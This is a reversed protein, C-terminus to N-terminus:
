ADALVSKPNLSDPALTLRADLATQVAAIQKDISIATQSPIDLGRDEFADTDPHQERWESIVVDREHLLAVIQPRFLRFMATIWRNTPWSPWAHDIEFRDLMACVNEAAFWNEATVWRNTTFLGIPFGRQDMSIAILHSLTDDREKIYTVESQPVPRVGESM